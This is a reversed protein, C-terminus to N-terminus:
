SVTLKFKSIRDVVSAPVTNPRYCTVTVHRVERSCVDGRKLTSGDRVVLTLVTTDPLGLRRCVLWELLENAVGVRLKLTLGSPCLQWPRTEVAVIHTWDAFLRRYRPPLLHVPLENLHLVTALQCLYELSLPLSDSLPPVHYVTNSNAVWLSGNSAVNLFVSDLSKGLGLLKYGLSLDPRVVYLVETLGVCHNLYLRDDPGVAVSSIPASDTIYRKLLRQQPSYVHIGYATCVHLRGHRDYALGEASEYSHGVRAVTGGAEVFLITGFDYNIVIRGDPSLVLDRPESPLSNNLRRVPVAWSLTGLSSPSSVTVIRAGNIQDGSTSFKFLIEEFDSEARFRRDTGVFVAGGGADMGWVGGFVEEQLVPPVQCPFRARENGDEDLHVLFLGDYRYADGAGGSGARECYLLYM